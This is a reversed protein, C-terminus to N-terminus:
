ADGISEACWKKWINRYIKEVERAYIQPNGAPSALLRQRLGARLAELDAVNRARETAIELYQEASEAIWEGLGSVTLISAAARNSPTAGQLTVVPVGMWLSELTSIGGVYPFPDLTIDVKGHAKLHEHWSSLGMFSIRGSEVGAGAFIRQVRERPQAHEFEKAKFLMISNPVRKLLRAWVGLAEDSLKVYNNFYGFTVFGRERAPLPTVAPPEALPLYTMLCPLEVVEESFYRRMSEPITVADAFLYDIADLGTGTVLGWATVQVPAPKRAFLLLRNDTSHGSLDVLIDIGDERIRREVEADPVKLISRWHDVSERFRATFQDERPTNAYCTVEFGARDYHLLMPGFALAASHNCFDASVYGIRLKREAQPPNDHRPVPLRLPEVQQKQWRRREEYQAEGGLQPDFGMAMILNSHAEAFDPKLELARRISAIGYDLNGHSVSALGINYHAECLQPDLEVAKGLFTLGAETEGKDCLVMGINAHAEAFDPAIRIAERYLGAAENLEGRAYLLNGYTNHFRASGPNTAIARKFWAVAEDIRGDQDAICGLEYLSDAHWPNDEVVQLFLSQAM